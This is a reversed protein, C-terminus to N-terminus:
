YPELTEGFGARYWTRGPFHERACADDADSRRILFLVDPNQDMPLNQAFNTEHESTHGPIFAVIANKLGLTKALRLPTTVYRYDSYAVLYMLPAIRVVGYFVALSVVLAPLTSRVRPALGLRRVRFADMLPAIIGAGGAAMPVVVPLIYRPGLGDDGGRGFEV